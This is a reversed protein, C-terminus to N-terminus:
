WGQQYTPGWDKWFPMWDWGNAWGVAIRRGQADVFTQPAYFDFGWDSEGTVTYVFRGTAYDIDGVFYM